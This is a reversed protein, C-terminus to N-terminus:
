NQIRDLYVAAFTEHGEQPGYIGVLIEKLAASQDGIAYAGDTLGAAIVGHNNQAHGALLIDLCDSVVGRVIAQGIIQDPTETLALNVREGIRLDDYKTGARFTNQGAELETAALAAFLITRM